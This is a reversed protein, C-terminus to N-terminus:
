FQICMNIDDTVAMVKKEDTKWIKIGDYEFGQTWQLGEVLIFDGVSVDKVDKGIALTKGWRPIKQLDFDKPSQSLLIGSRTKSIFLGNSLDDIFAFLIYNKLPKLSM